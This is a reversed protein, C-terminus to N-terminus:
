RMGVIRRVQIEAVPNRWDYVAADLDGIGQVGNAVSIFGEAPAPDHSGGSGCAPGPIFDCLESNAESGADYAVANITTSLERSLRLSNIGVFADNTNVLMSALSLYRAQGTVRIMVTESAGPPIGGTGSQVDEVSANGGLLVALPMNNGEEALAALEPSSVAGPTFMSVSSDHSAVLLPSLIQGRTLNTVTVEFMASDPASQPTAAAFTLACLGTALGLGLMSPIKRM